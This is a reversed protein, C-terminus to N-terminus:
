QMATKGATEMQQGVQLCAGALQTSVKCYEFVGSYGWYVAAYGFANIILKSANVPSNKKM